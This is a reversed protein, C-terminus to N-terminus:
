AYNNVDFLLDCLSYKICIINYYKITEKIQRLFRIENSCKLKKM